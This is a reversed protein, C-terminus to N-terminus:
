SHHKIVVSKVVKDSWTQNKADWLPWLYNLLPVFFLISLVSSAMNVAYDFGVRGFGRGAGIPVGADQDVVAINLVRKGISQATKGQRYGENWLRIVLALVFGVGLYAGGADTIANNPDFSDSTVNTDFGGNNGAIIALIVLPVFAIVWDILYAGVRAWWGALMEPRLGSQVPAGYAPDPYGAQGYGQQTYGQQDGYGPQGYPSQQQGHGQQQDGTTAYPNDSVPPKSPDAQYPQDGYRDDSM